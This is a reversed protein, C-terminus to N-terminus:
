PHAEHPCDCEGEPVYWESAMGSAESHQYNDPHADLYERGRVCHCVRDCVVCAHMNQALPRPSPTTPDPTM